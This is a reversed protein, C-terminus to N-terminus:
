SHCLGATAANNLWLSSSEWQTLGVLFHNSNQRSRTQIVHVRNQAIVVRAERETGTSCDFFLEVNTRDVM